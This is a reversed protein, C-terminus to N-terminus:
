QLAAVARALEPLPSDIPTKEVADVLHRRAPEGRLEFDDLSARLEFLRAGQRRALTRATALGAGRANPETHTHARARLLEADYFRVGTDAAFLLATDLRARAQDPTGAATLLRGFLCWDGRNIASVARDILADIPAGQELGPNGSRAVGPRGDVV